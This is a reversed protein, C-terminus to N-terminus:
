QKIIKFAHGPIAEFHVQYIGNAFNGSSIENMGAQLKGAAMIRGTVDTFYYGTGEMAESAHIIVYNQMPNPYIIIGNTENLYEVFLGSINYCASTDTCGNLQVQVAYNGNNTATFIQNTKGSIPSFGALCDLWQYVASSQNSTLEVGNSTVSTDPLPNIIVNTFTTDACGETASIIVTYNGNMTNTSNGIFPNQLNSTFGAPGSWEYFSGGSSSLQINEGTCYPGNNSASGVPFANVEVLTVSVSTCGSTDTVTVSYNGSMATVSSFVQSNQSNDTFGAPGSWSYSIGGSSYLEITDGECYPGSNSSSSVPAPAIFVTTSTDASCGSGNTVTVTYVGNMATTANLIFPNQINIENYGGPGTWDDSSSGAPSFLQITDGECYPGSNTAVPEPNQNVTVTATASSSCGAANTGTVIYSTSSLPNASVSAGNTSSLGTAPSWLYTSAGSANLIGSQGECFALNNVTVVPNNMVTINQTTTNCGNSNCATLTVTYTGSGSFCVSGPSQSSSSAPTAGPFSWTWSTPSNASNDSFVVCSGTCVASASSNIIATPPLVPSEYWKAICNRTQGDALTFPGGAFLTGNYVAMSKVYDNMGTGMASWSPTSPNWKAIKNASIAGAMSFDGGVIINGNYQEVARVYSNVGTGLPMWDSGDYVAVGSMSSDGNLQLFHGGMYLLNNVSDVYFCRVTSDVGGVVDVGSNGGVWQTGDWKVLGDCPTCNNVNNFDGGAWLEGDYSALARVDNDFIPDTIGGIPLWQTGTWRAIRSCPNGDAETFDGGAILEGNWITMCLVDNNFGTGLATWQSGDWLAIGNCGACPQQVNWFDGCVVLDGNYVIAARGVLGVGGGLCSWTTGDWTAVKNCPSNYSGVDVLLGNWVCMGHSSNNTGGGVDQWSQAALYNVPLVLLTCFLLNIIAYKM